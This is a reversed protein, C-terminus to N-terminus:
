EDAEEEDESDEEDLDNADEYGRMFGDEEASIEDDELPDDMEKEDEAVDADFYENDFDDKMIVIVFDGM